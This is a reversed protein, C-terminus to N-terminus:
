LSQARGQLANQPSVVRGVAYAINLAHALAETARAQEAASESEVASWLQIRRDAIKRWRRPSLAPHRNSVEYRGLDLLPDVAEGYHCLCTPPDAGDM